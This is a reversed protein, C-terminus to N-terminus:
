SISVMKVIESSCNKQRQSSVQDTRGELFTQFRYKHFPSSQCELLNAFWNVWDRFQFSVLNNFMSALDVLMTSGAVILKELEGIALKIDQVIIETTEKAINIVEQSATAGKLLISDSHLHGM